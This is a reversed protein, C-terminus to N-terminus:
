VGPLAELRATYALMTSSRWTDIHHGIDEDEYYARICSILNAYGEVTNPMGAREAIGTSELIPMMEEVRQVLLGTGPLSAFIRGIEVANEPSMMVSLMENSVVRAQTVSLPPAVTQRFQERLTVLTADNSFEQEHLRRIDRVQRRLTAFGEPTNPFGHKKAIGSTEFLGFFLKSALAEDKPNRSELLDHSLMPRALPQAPSELADMIDRYLIRLDEVSMQPSALLEIDASSNPDEASKEDGAKTKDGFRLGDRQLWGIAIAAGGVLTGLVWYAGTSGFGAHQQLAQVSSLVLGGVVQQLARVAAIASGARDPYRSVCHVQISSVSCTLLVGHAVTM